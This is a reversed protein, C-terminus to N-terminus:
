NLIERLQILSFDMDDSNVFRTEILQKTVMGIELSIPSLSLTRKGGVQPRKRVNAPAAAPVLLPWDAGASDRALGPLLSKRLFLRGRSRRYVRM